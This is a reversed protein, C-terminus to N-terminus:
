PSSWASQEVRCPDTYEIQGREMQLQVFVLLQVVVVQRFSIHELLCFCWGAKPFRPSTVSRFDILRTHLWSHVGKRLQVDCSCRLTRETVGHRCM